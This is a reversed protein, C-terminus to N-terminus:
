EAAQSQHQDGRRRSRLADRLESKLACWKTGIKFAPLLEHDCLCYVRTPPIGTFRSIAPVGELIDGALDTAAMEAM